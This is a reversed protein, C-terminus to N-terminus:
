EEEWILTGNKLRGIKWKRATEDYMRLYTFKQSELTGVIGPVSFTYWDDVEQVAVRLVRNTIDYISTHVTQWWPQGGSTKGRFYDKPHNAWADFITNTYALVDALDSVWPPTTERRYARTYWANTINAGGFLLDYREHGSGSGPTWELISFNTLVPTNSPAYMTWSFPLGNEVLWTEHEDSIMYHFNQSWGQPFRIRLALNSAVMGASTGNDLAWRVAALPHIADPIQTSWWGSEHPDGDVVNIEAVVGNENIGDVTAGPLWKYCPSPKGSTVIAETLNTGVQAVGVSAFRHTPLQNNTTPLQTGASMKVIFEARDDLPYDFNRYLFGGSRVASCGGDTKGDGRSRYYAAAEDPYSDDANYIHLYRPLPRATGNHSAREVKGTELCKIDKALEGEVRYLEQLGAKQGVDSAVALRDDRGVPVPTRDTASPRSATAFFSGRKTVGDEMLWDFMFTINTANWEKDKLYCVYLPRGDPQFLVVNAWTGLTGTEPHHIPKPAGYEAMRDLFDQPCDPTAKTWTWHENMPETASVKVTLNTLDRKRSIAAGLGNTLGVLDGKYALGTDDFTVGTVVRETKEVDEKVKKEVSIGAGLSTLALCALLVPASLKRILQNVTNWVTKDTFTPPIEEVGEIKLTVNGNEDPTKGNVSVVMRRPEGGPSPPVVASGHLSPRVIFDGRGIHRYSTDCEELEYFGKREYQLEGEPIMFVWAIDESDIEADYEHAITDGDFLVKMKLEANSLPVGRVIIRAASGAGIAITELKGRRRDVNVKITRSLM